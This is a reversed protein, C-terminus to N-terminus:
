FLLRYSDDPPAIVCFFIFTLGFTLIYNVISLVYLHSMGSIHTRHLQIAIHMNLGFGIFAPVVAILPHSVNLVLVLAIVCGLMILGNFFTMIEIGRPTVIRTLSYRNYEPDTLYNFYSFVYHVTLAMCGCAPGLFLSPATDFFAWLSGHAEAQSQILCTSMVGVPGFILFTALMSVPTNILPQKGVHMLYYLGYIFLGMTVFWWSHEAITLLGLGAMLSLLFSATAAERIVRILFPHGRESDDEDYLVTDQPFAKDHDKQMEYWAHYFNATLQAFIAFILCLTAPLLEMNGRIVASATGACVTGVGLWLSPLIAKRKVFSLLNM